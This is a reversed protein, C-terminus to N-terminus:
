DMMKVHKSKKKNNNPFIMTEESKLKDKNKDYKKEM